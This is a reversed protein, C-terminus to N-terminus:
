WIFPILRKHTAAYARYDDGLNQYLAREEVGIRFVLACSTAVTLDILSWWNGILLGVAMVALLIGAYSPHRIVRYPGDTIVPQDASTQVVFTFYRGLTRFSWFRLALGFWLFGLGLYAAVAAPRITATPAARSLVFASFAGVAVAVRFVIESGWKANVGEPRRRLSQRLELLVWIAGTALLLDRVFPPAAQATDM